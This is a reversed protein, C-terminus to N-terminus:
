MKYDEILCCVNAIAIYIYVRQEADHVIFPPLLFHEIEYKGTRM